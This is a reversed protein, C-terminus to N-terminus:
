RPHSPTTRSHGRWPGVVFVVQWLWLVVVVEVVVTLDILIPRTPNVQFPPPLVAEGLPSGPPPLPYPPLARPDATVVTQQITLMLVVEAWTVLDSLNQGVSILRLHSVPVFSFMQSFPSEFVRTEELALGCDLPLVNEEDLELKPCLNTWQTPSNAYNPGVSPKSTDVRRLGVLDTTRIELPGLFSFEYNWSITLLNGDLNSSWTSCLSSFM